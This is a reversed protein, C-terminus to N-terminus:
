TSRQVILVLQRPNKFEITNKNILMTLNSIIKQLPPAHIYVHKMLASFKPTGKM